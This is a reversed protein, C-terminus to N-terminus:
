EMRNEKALTANKTLKLVKSFRLTSKLLLYSVPKFSFLPCKITDIPIFSKNLQFYHNKNGIWFNMNHNKKYQYKILKVSFFFFSFIAKLWTQDFTNLRLSTKESWQKRKGPKVSKWNHTNVSPGLYLRGLCVM